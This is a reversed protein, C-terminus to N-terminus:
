YDYVSLEGGVKVELVGGNENKITEELYDGSISLYGYVDIVGENLIAKKALPNNYINVNSYGELHMTGTNYVGYDGVEQIYMGGNGLISFGGTNVFATNTTGKQNRIDIYGHVILTGNNEIIGTGVISLNTTDGLRITTNTGIKLDRIRLFGSGGDSGQGQAQNGLLILDITQEGSGIEVNECILPVHGLSWNTDENFVGLTDPGIWINPSFDTGEDTSGDCNNDIADCLIEDMSPNIEDDNDNCDEVENCFGDLDWDSGWGYECLNTVDGGFPLGPNNSLNISDKYCFSSIGNVFCGELLNNSATFTRLSSNYGLNLPISDLVNYDLHITNIKTMTTFALPIAGSFQNNSLDLTYLLDHADWFNPITDILLNTSLNLYSLETLASFDIPLEGQLNNNSLDIETIEGLYNCTIGFWNCYDCESNLYGNEWGENNSWSAGDLDEYINLLTDVQSLCPLDESYLCISFEGEEDSGEEVVRIYVIENILAPDDFQLTVAEGNFSFVCDISTLSSCDGMYVEVVLDSIINTAQLTLYMTDVDPYEFQYWIDKEVGTNGCSMSGGDGSPTTAYNDFYGKICYNFIPLEKSRNCIDNFPAVISCNEGTVCTAFSYKDYILTGPQPGFGNNLNIGASTLHCYSMVTGGVNNPPNGPDACSGEINGCGDIATSNGNWVCAQTHNSGMNHGMEHAVVMVNWSYSPYPVSGSNLNASVAVNNYNSCLANLYAIGGGLSRGSLLHALRGNNNPNNRVENRFLNLAETTNSASVYPDATDWVQIASINIPVDHEIYLIAVQSFMTMVWAEANAVDSGLKIYMNRDIEFFVTVCESSLSSRSSINEDDLKDKSEDIVMCEWTRDIEAIRDEYYYGAYLDKHQHIEYNGDKDFISISLQNEYYILSVKSDEVGKVKGQYFSYKRASDLIKGSSTYLKYEPALINTKELLLIKSGKDFPIEIEIVGSYNLKRKILDINIEYYDVSSLIGNSEVNISASVEAKDVVNQCYSNNITLFHLLLFAITYLKIKTPMIQITHCM